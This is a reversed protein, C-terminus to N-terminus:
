GGNPGMSEHVLWWLFPVGGLTKRPLWAALALPVILSSALAGVSLVKKISLM